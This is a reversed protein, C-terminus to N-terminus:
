YDELREQYNELIDRITEFEKKKLETLNSLEEILNEIFESVEEMDVANNKELTNIQGALKVLEIGFSNYSQASLARREESRKIINAELQALMVVGRM